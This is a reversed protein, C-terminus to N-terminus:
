HRVFFLQNILFSALNIMHCELTGRLIAPLVVSGQEQQSASGQSPSLRGVQGIEGVPLQSHSFETKVTGVPDHLTKLLSM